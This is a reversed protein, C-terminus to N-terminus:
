MLEQHMTPVTHGTTLCSFGSRSIHQQPVTHLAHGSEHGVVAKHALTAFSRDPSELAPNALSGMRPVFSM